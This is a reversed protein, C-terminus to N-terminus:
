YGSGRRNRGVDKRRRENQERQYLSLGTPMQRRWAEEATLDGERSAVGVGGEPGDWRCHGGFCVSGGQSAPSM